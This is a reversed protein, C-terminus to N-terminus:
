MIQQSKTVIVHFKQDMVDYKQDLHLPFSINHASSTSHLMGHVQRIEQNLGFPTLTKLIKIWYNGRDKLRQKLAETSTNKRKSM